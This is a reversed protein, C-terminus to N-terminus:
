RSKRKEAQSRIAESYYDEYEKMKERAQESARRIDPSSNLVDTYPTASYKQQNRHEQNAVDFIKKGQQFTVYDKQLNHLATAANQQLNAKTSELYQQYSAQGKEPTIGQSALKASGTVLMSRLLRDALLQEERNLGARQFAEVPLSINAAMNGLNIGFGAQAASFIQSAFSGDQRLLNFVKKAVQPHSQILNIGTAYESNISSYVPDASTTKLQKLYEESEKEKAEANRLYAAERSKREPDSMNSVDPFAFTQPYPTFQKPQEPMSASPANSASPTSSAPQNQQAGTNIAPGAMPSARNSEPSGLLGSAFNQLFNTESATLPMGKAQKVQIADLVTRQQSRANEIDKAGGEYAAKAATAAASNPALATVKAYTAQDMPKGSAEWTQMLQNAKQQSGMLVNTQALQARMQAIPIQSERQKETNEGLAKSASGLSAGFGGLQPKLFGAAVKFFNPQEYRRELSKIIDEQSQKLEGLQGEDVGYLNVKSLDGFKQDAM